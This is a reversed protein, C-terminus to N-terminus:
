WRLEEFLLEEVVGLEELDEVLRLQLEGLATRFLRVVIAVVSTKDQM